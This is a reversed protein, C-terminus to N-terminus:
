KRRFGAKPPPVGASQACSRCSRLSGPNSGCLAASRIRGLLVGVPIDLYQTNVGAMSMGFRLIGIVLAALATGIVGGTGGLNSTGGLVVATIIPLTLEKGLDAKSTGLYATLLIGALSASMGSLTYTSMTVLKTKIGCYEAAHRNVGCLFVKRGYTTRHLM